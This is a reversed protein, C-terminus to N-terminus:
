QEIVVIKQDAKINQLQQITGSPWKIEITDIRSALGLGFTQWLSSQSVYSSGSIIERIQTRGGSTLLIKAGIADRNSKTGVLQITIWHNKNGQNQYLRHLALDTYASSLVLIDVFGDNNYDGVAAAEKADNGEIGEMLSVDSFTGDGRNKFLKDLKFEGLDSDWLNASPTATSGNAVFIDIHGDNDYDLFETGWGLSLTNAVGSKRSIESFTGDGNNRWLYNQGANTTYIDLNGDNDYDGVTVGMNTGMTCLGAAYTVDQFTGNGNNRYLPSVGNETAVFLDIKGDGDYDFWIPQYANKQHMKNPHHLSSKNKRVENPCNAMGIVGAKKTVDTFTGNGNNEYLINPQAVWTGDDAISGYNAVYLDLYGDSNYDAWAAGRGNLKDRIGARGTIDTFTGDCNNRYLADQLGPEGKSGGGNVIYLDPCGDNNYDGFVASWPWSFAGIGTRETVDTFTGNGNNLYLMRKGPGGLIFLDLYGDQNIDRWSAGTTHPYRKIGSREIVNQFGKRKIPSWIDFKLSLERYISYLRAHPNKSLYFFAGFLMLAIVTCLLLLSFIVKM